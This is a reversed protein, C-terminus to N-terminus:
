PAERCLEARTPLRQRAGPRRRPAGLLKSRSAGPACLPRYALLHSGAAVYVTHNAIAVGSSGFAGLADPAGDVALPRLLLPVGTRADWARFFGTSDTSYAVGDAVAPPQYHVADGIPSIWRLAGDGPRFSMMTSGPSVPAFVAKSSPDYATSAGNCLPCSIGLAVRRARSMDDAHVVHYVGSKQLEGVLLRGDRVRFLNASGGFDLDLQLCAYSDRLQNLDPVFSPLPLELPNEAMLKCTPDALKKLLPIAQDIEGKYSAVIEGFTSRSRDMDVKLIANTHEHETQKSFPNGSGVFAYGSAPDVAPTSWLGGGAGRAWDAQPVTYTKALIRGDAADVLAFGGQAVPDGEPVSFGVFVVGDHVM